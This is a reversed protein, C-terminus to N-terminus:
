KSDGLTRNNVINESSVKVRVASKVSKMKGCGITFKIGNIPKKKYSSQKKKKNNDNIWIM